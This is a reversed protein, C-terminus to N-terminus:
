SKKKHKRTKDIKKILENMVDPNLKGFLTGKDEHTYESYPKNIGSFDKLEEQTFPVEVINRLKCKALKSWNQKMKVVKKGDVEEEVKEQYDEIWNLEDDATVKKYKFKQGFIDLEVIDNDKVFFDKKEMKKGIQLLM